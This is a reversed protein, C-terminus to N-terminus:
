TLPAGILIHEQRWSIVRFVALGQMLAGLLEHIILIGGGLWALLLLQWRPILRGWPQILALAIVAGFACLASSALMWALGNTITSSIVYATMTVWAAAIAGLQMWRPMKEGWFRLWVVLVRLLCVIGAYIIWTFSAEAGPISPAKISGTFATLFGTTSGEIGWYLHALAFLVGWACAVYGIWKTWLIRQRSASADSINAM